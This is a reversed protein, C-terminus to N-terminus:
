VLTGCDVCPSWIEFFILPESSYLNSTQGSQSSPFIDRSWLFTNSFDIFVGLCNSRSLYILDPMKLRSHHAGSLRITEVLSVCGVTYCKLCFFLCPSEELEQELVM